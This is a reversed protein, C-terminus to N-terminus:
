KLNELEEESKIEIGTNFLKEWESVNIKFKEIKKYGIFYESKMDKVNIAFEKLRKQKITGAQIPCYLGKGYYKILTTIPIDFTALYEFNREEQIINKDEINLFFHVYKEGEKYKHNNSLKVNSFSKGIENIKGNLYLDLENKSMLRYVKM